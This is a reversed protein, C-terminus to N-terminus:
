EKAKLIFDYTIKSLFKNDLLINLENEDLITFYVLAVDTFISKEGKKAAIENTTLMKTINNINDFIKKFVTITRENKNNENGFFYNIDVELVEAIKELTSIKLSNNKFISYYGQQTIGIKECLTLISIDKQKLMKEIKGRIQIDIM